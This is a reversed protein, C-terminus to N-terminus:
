MSVLEMVKDLTTEGRLLEAIIRGGQLVIIRDSVLLVEELETSVFIIGAEKNALERVINYIETKAGVDIGRTPEDLILIKSKTALWKGIVVKQQNGGSLIRVEARLSPVKLELEGVLSQCIEIEKSLLRIGAKSIWRQAVLMLNDVVSMVSAVGQRRRDEPAFGIGHGIMEEPSHQTIKKGGIIIEGVDFPDIGFITRLIETRGSGVLGALGLVEHSYLDFTIDQFAGKRGLNRVSLLLSGRKRTKQEIVRDVKRGLILDIVESINTKATELTDIIMGNRIVTIRDAIQFVEHIKHSVYIITKGKCKLNKVLDLLKDVESEPLAATPEDMIFIEAQRSLARAIEVVQQEAVSISEVRRSPDIDAGLMRMLEKARNNAEKWNVRGFKNVPLRGLLVNEAVSLQPILMLEQNIMVIGLSIAYRPSRMQTLRSRFLIEGSGPRIAGSILRVLTSKGAGNSGVIAHVEGARFDLSVNRVAVVGSFSKTVNNLKLLINPQNDM